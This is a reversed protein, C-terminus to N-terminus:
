FFYTGLEMRGMFVPKQPVIQESGLWQKCIINYQMLISSARHVRTEGENTKFLATIWIYKIGILIYPKHRDMDWNESVTNLSVQIM